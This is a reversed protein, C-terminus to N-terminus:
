LALRERLFPMAKEHIAFVDGFFPGTLDLAREDHRYHAMHYGRDRLWAILDAEELGYNKAHGILELAIVPLFGGEIHQELGRLVQWEAGEVDLKMLHITEMPLLTDLREVPVEVGAEGEDV